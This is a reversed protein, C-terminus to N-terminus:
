LCSLHAEAKRKRIEEDRNVVSFDEFYKVTAARYAARAEDETDFLGLYKLRGNVRISAQYKVIGSRMKKPHAGNARSNRMNQARSCERLNFIANNRPDGDIHDIHGKPWEGYHYFWALRHARFEMNLVSIIRYGDSKVTGAVDGAYTRNKRDVKWRFIGTAPDFSLLMLLKEHPIHGPRRSGKESRRYKNVSARRAAKREEDTM